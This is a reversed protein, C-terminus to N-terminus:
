EIKGDVNLLDIVAARKREDQILEDLHRDVSIDPITELEGLDPTPPPEQEATAQVITYAPGPMGVGAKDFGEKIIRIAESWVKFYDYNQQDVWAYIKLETGFDGLTDLRCQPAPEQLVGPADELLKLALAQVRPINEASDM